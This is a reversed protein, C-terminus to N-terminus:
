YRRGRNGNAVPLPAHQPASGPGPTAGPEPNAGLVPPPAPPLFPAFPNAPSVQPTVQNMPPQGVGAGDIPAGPPLGQGGGLMHMIAMRRLAIPDM